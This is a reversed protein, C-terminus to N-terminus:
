CLSILSEVSPQGARPSHHKRIVEDYRMMGIGIRFRSGYTRYHDVMLPKCSHIWKEGSRRKNCIVPELLPAEEGDSYSPQSLCFKPKLVLATNVFLIIM